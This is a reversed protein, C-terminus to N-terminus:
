VPLIFRKFFSGLGTKNGRQSDVDVIVQGGGAPRVYATSLYVNVFDLESDVHFRTNLHSAIIREPPLSGGHLEEDTVEARGEAKLILKGPGTAQSRIMKGLLLSSARPSFHTSLQITKSMGVFHYFDFLVIENEGLQWEFFEVGRTASCRVPDDGPQMEVKNMSYAGHRLRAFIAKLPQPITFRPAKGRSQFRRSIYYTEDNEGSIEYQLGARNIRSTTKVPDASTAGLTVFNGTKQHFSVRAFVYVYSKMCVFLFALLTLMYAAQAYNIAWWLSAQTARNTELLVNEGEQYLDDMIKLADVTKKQVAEKFKQDYQAVVASLKKKMHNRMKKFAENTSDQSVSVALEVAPGIVIDDSDYEDFDLNAPMIQDFSMEVRKSLDTNQLRRSQLYIDHKTKEISLHWAYMADHTKVAVSQLANDLIDHGHDYRLVGDEHLEDVVTQPLYTDYLYLLPTACVALPLWLVLAHLAKRLNDSWSRNVFLYSNEQIGVIVLRGLAAVAVFIFIPLHGQLVSLGGGISLAAWSVTISLLLMYMVFSQSFIRGRAVFWLFAVQAAMSSHILWDSVLSWGPVLAAAFLTYNFAPVMLGFILLSWCRRRLSLWLAPVILLFGLWWFFKGIDQWVDVAITSDLLATISRSSTQKVQINLLPPKSALDLQLDEYAAKVEQQKKVADNYDDRKQQYAELKKPYSSQQQQYAAQRKSLQTCYSEIQKHNFGKYPLNVLVTCSKLAKKEKESLSKPKPPAKPPKGLDPYAPLSEFNSTEYEYLSPVEQQEGITYLSLDFIFPTLTILVVFQGLGSFGGKRSHKADGLNTSLRAFFRKFFLPLREMVIKQAEPQNFIKEGM